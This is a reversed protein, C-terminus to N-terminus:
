TWRSHPPQDRKRLEQRRARSSPLYLRDPPQFQKAACARHNQPRRPATKCPANWNRFERQEHLRTATASSDSRPRESPVSSFIPEDRSELIPPIFTPRNVPIKPRSVINVNANIKEVSRRAIRPLVTAQPNPSCNANATKTSRTSMPRRM